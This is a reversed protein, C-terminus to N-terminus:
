GDLAGGCSSGAGATCGFCHTDTAIPRGTLEDLNGITDLTLARGGDLLPMELMQNFDCDFLSGEWGVSILDRCMLSDVTAPNFHAVLLAMYRDYDGRRHLVDAFRRIPMNTITLLRDFEIGFRERLERRYDKELGDQPPPLTAGLPNYVLELDLPSCAQGYGISNLRKLADISQAFVGKGRQADVNEGTYCPLSCILRVRNARYFDPLWEMDPEFLITLNCRVWIDRGLAHAATVLERFSPCLEPAGGTIDLTAIGPARALLDIVRAATRDSMMETRTPGADVHCHHCAQNCRRGVNVQLTRAARRVPAAISQGELHDLFGPDERNETASSQTM